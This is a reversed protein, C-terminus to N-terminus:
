DQLARGRNTPHPRSKQGSKPICNIM